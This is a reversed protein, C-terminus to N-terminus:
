KELACVAYYGGLHWQTELCSVIEFNLEVRESDRLMISSLLFFNLFKFLISPPFLDSCIYPGQMEMRVEIVTTLSSTSNSFFIKFFVSLYSSHNLM